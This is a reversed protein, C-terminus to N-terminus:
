GSWGGEWTQRSGRQWTSYRGLPIKNRIGGAAEDSPIMGKEEIMAPAVDSVQLIFDIPSSSHVVSINFEALPTSLNKMLGTLGAKSAAYHPGNIGGGQAAICSVYM